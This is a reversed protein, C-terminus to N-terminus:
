APEIGHNNGRQGTLRAIGHMRQRNVVVLPVPDFQFAGRANGRMQASGFV